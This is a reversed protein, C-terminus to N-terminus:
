VLTPSGRPEEHSTIRSLASIEYLHFRIKDTTSKVEEMKISEPLFGSLNASAFCFQCQDAMQHDPTKDSSQDSEVVRTEIGQATCIEIVNYKGGWMFGCAPAIISLLFASLALIHLYNKM